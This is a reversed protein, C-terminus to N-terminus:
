GVQEVPFNLRAFEGQLVVAVADYARAAEEETAYRGIYKRVGNAKIEAMWRGKHQSIGKFRRGRRPGTNFQNQSPTALRLNGRTCDLGNGNRHDVWAGAPADLVFRHLQMRGPIRSKRYVSRTGYLLGQPSRQVAWKFVAVRDYDEDDVIAVHGQTLPIERPM